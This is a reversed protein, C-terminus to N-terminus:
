RGEAFPEDAAKPDPEGQASPGREAAEAPAGFGGEGLEAHALREAEPDPALGDIGPAPEADRPEVRIGPMGQPSGAAAGSRGSLGQLGHLGPLGQVGPVAPLQEVVSQLRAIAEDARAVPDPRETAPARVLLGEPEVRMRAAVIEGFADGDVEFDEAGSDLRIVIDEGRSYNIARIPRGRVLMRRGVETRQLLGSQVLIRAWIQLWGLLGKPRLVAIDLAGDDIVADPLLVVNGPLIGCNGIMVTNAHAARAAGGDIRFRLKMAHGGRVSRLIGGMYAVWGVRKKLEDDTNAIMAADIGVGCIVTFATRERAGDPREVEVAGYDIARTRGGFAVDVARDVSGIPIGLNRALLNGTGAPIVGLALRTGGLVDAVVRVTGDGGAAVVMEVGAEVAERAQGAGADEPTTELWLSPAWGHRSEADAVARRLAEADVKAPNAVIAARRERGGEVAAAPNTPSM